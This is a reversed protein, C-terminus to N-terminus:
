RIVDMVRAVISELRQQAEEDRAGRAPGFGGARADARHREGRHARGALRAHALTPIRELGDGSRRLRALADAALAEAALGLGREERALQRLAGLLHEFAGNRRARQSERAEPRRLEGDVRKPAAPAQRM